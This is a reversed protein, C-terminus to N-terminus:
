YNNTILPTPTSIVMADKMNHIARQLLNPLPFGHKKLSWLSIYNHFVSFPNRAHEITVAERWRCAKQDHKTNHIKLVRGAATNQLIYILDCPMM